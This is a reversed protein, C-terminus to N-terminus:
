EKCSLVLARICESIAKKDKQEFAHLLEGAIQDNIEDDMSSQEMSMEHEDIEGGHAMCNMEGCTKCKM